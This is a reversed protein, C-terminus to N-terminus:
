LEAHISNHINECQFSEKPQGIGVMSQGTYGQLSLYVAFPWFILKKFFRRKRLLYNEKLDRGKLREVYQEHSLGLFRAISKGFEGLPIDEPIARSFIIEARYGAKTLALRLCKETWRTFHNPPRDGADEKCRYRRPSPVSLLLPAEPFRTVISRLFGVPDPLHELVELLTIADPEPWNSPYDEITGRAAQFGAKLLIKIPEEAVDMGLPSFGQKQLAALFRGEGCGLDFVYAGLPINNKLWKIVLREYGILRTWNIYKIQDSAILIRQWYVAHNIASNSSEVGTYAADYMESRYDLPNAFQLGCNPCQYISYKGYIELPDTKVEESCILCYKKNNQM